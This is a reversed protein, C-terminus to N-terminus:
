RDVKSGASCMGVARNDRNCLCAGLSRWKGPNEKLWHLRDRASKGLYLCRDRHTAFLYGDAVRDFVSSGWNFQGNLPTDGKAVDSADARM